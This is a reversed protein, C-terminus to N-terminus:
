LLSPSRRSGRPKAAFPAVIYRELVLMKLGEVAGDPGGFAQATGAQMACCCLPIGTATELARALRIGELVTAPTTEDMLHTNAVLGTVAMRAAAQVDRLMAQCAPLDEAFPRNANVVFLLDTAARDLLGSLSGLVRAGLDDGGVDFIVRDTRATGDQALGRAEPVLIPLDAYFRDGMPAVLRIGRAGLDNKALRCRFYPKVLDLDVLTVEAGRNRLGFAVNVAIESKGSGFHGVLVLARRTFLDLAGGGSGLGPLSDTDLGDRNGTIEARGGSVSAEREALFRPRVRVYSGM